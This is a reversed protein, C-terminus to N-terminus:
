LRLIRYVEGWIRRFIRIFVECVLNVGELYRRAGRVSYNEVIGWVGRIGVGSRDVSVM